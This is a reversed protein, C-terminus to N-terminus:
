RYCVRLSLFIQRKPPSVARLTNAVNSLAAQADGDEEQIPENKINLKFQSQDSERPLDASTFHLIFSIDHKSWHKKSLGPLTM